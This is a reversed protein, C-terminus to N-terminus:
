IEFIGPFSFGWKKSIECAWFGLEGLGLFQVIM